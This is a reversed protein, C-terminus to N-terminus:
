AQHGCFSIRFFLVQTDVSSRPHVIDQNSKEEGQRENKRTAGHAWIVRTGLYLCRGIKASGLTGGLLSGVCIEGPPFRELIFLQFGEDIGRQRVVEIESDGDRSDFLRTLKGEYGASLIKGRYIIRDSGAIALVFEKTGYDWTPSGGFTSKQGGSAHCAYAFASGPAGVTM